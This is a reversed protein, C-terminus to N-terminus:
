IPLWGITAQASRRPYPWSETKVRRPRSGNWRQFLLKMLFCVYIFHRPFTSFISRAVPPYHRILDAKPSPFYRTIAKNRKGFKTYNPNLQIERYLTLINWPSIELLKRPVLLHIKYGRILFNLVKRHVYISDQTLTPFIPHCTLSILSKCAPPETM